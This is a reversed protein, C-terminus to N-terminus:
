NGIEMGIARHMESVAESFRPDGMVNRTEDPDNKHDYLEREVVEGTAQEVWAVYRFRETRIARGMYKEKFRSYQSHAYNRVLASPDDLIPVLSKGEIHKPADLGALECLTPYLDLLEAFSKTRGAERRPNAIIFPVRTAIEYNTMKGWASHEGLHWGHDSWLVVITNESQGSRELGNLVQGIQADVYSVCAAYAQLLDLQRQQSIEGRYPVNLYSRMEYGNWAIGQERTPDPPMTLGARRAGGVYGDSNFWAMVPAGDPPLPNKPLWSSDPVDYLDFYKKPAVFPLHPRRYGVAFFFPQEGRDERLSALVKKTMRGAFLHDDDVDPSQLVPCAWRDAIISTKDASDPDVIEWMERERGPFTPVSWDNPSDWGDHYIKGFGRTDYGNEKFLRAFSKADPRRKRFRKVDADNNSFVDVSDPSLGTLLSLRSTGCKAYQCYAREFVMGQSALRDISPTSIREDGYCGLMPRLDDVAFMLINPRASEDEACLFSAWSATALIGLLGWRRAFAAVKSNSRVPLWRRAFAAVKSNSRVPLWRRAFAAVMSKCRVPLRRRWFTPHKNVSPFKMLEDSLEGIQFIRPM